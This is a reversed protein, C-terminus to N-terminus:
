CVLAGKPQQKSLGQVGFFTMRETDLGLKLDVPSKTKATM